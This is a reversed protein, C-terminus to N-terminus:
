RYRSAKRTQCHYLTVLGVSVPLECWTHLLWSCLFLVASSPQAPLLTEKTGFSGAACQDAGKRLATRRRCGIHSTWIIFISEKGNGAHVRRSQSGGKSCDFSAAACPIYREGACSSWLDSGSCLMPVREKNQRMVSM